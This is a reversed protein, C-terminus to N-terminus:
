KVASIVNGKYWWPKITDLYIDSGKEYDQLEVVNYNEPLGEIDTRNNTGTSTQAGHRKMKDITNEVLGNDDYTWKYYAPDGSFLREFENISVITNITNDAIMDIIALSRLEAESRKIPNKNADHDNSYRAMRKQLETADLLYSSYLGNASKIVGLQEAYALEDEVRKQILRNVIIQKKIPDLDFFEAKALRVLEKSSLKPDSFDIYKEVTTGDPLQEYKYVGTLFRFRTGNPDVTKTKGNVKYKAKTHYNKIKQDETLPAHYNGEDDVYGELQNICQEVAALDSEAYRIFQQVAENDFSMTTGVKSHYDVNVRGHFLSVGSIVHYTKKDAVTPMLLFNNHIMTMKAIYDEKATIDFYDSGEDGYNSTKFNVFTATHL